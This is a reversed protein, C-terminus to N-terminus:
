ALQQSTLPERDRIARGNGVHKPRWPMERRAFALLAIHGFRDCLQAPNRRRADCAPRMAALMDDQPQGTPEIGRDDRRAKCCGARIKRAERKCGVVGGAVLAM